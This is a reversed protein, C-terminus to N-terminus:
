EPPRSELDARRQEAGLIRTSGVQWRRRGLFHDLACAARETSTSSRSAQRFCALPQVRPDSLDRNPNSYSELGHGAWDRTECDHLSSNRTEPYCIFLDRACSDQGLCLIDGRYQFGAEHKFDSHSVGQSSSHGAHSTRAATIWIRGAIAVSDM